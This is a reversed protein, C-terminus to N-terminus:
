EEEIHALITEAYKLEGTLGDYYQFVVHPHPFAVWRTARREIPNNFVNNVQVVCYHPFMRNRRPIDPLATTSWRIQCARPGYQFRGNTPCNGQDEPRHNVSNHPGSAFEWVRETIKVVFSNHLDGTLVFVPKGLSDWFEILTEREDLFATWADDKLEADFQAGGGGVHPVMLNVSSVVFHFDADSSKMEDMLWRTQHKGLISLGPKDPRKLDHLQRHSRTDLLYFDCNGVSFSGYSRRGISYSAAGNARAAPRIRLRHNDLVEVVDYVGANPDGGEIDGSPIDKVGADPTGWHVHLNGMQDPDILIDGGAEFTGRGFHIPQRYRVPNSWGLYDFWAQVAVDRFVARRNRYGATGTGFVDNLIEHDDFTYYSPVHRHWEALNRARQLYTKYNEWVGTITPAISVVRPTQRTAIGLQQRWQEPSDGRTEEYLWDGNLIAFNVDGKVKALLTDYTPLSPGLGDAPNQNNGCAFEFKFNFLGRPNFQPDRLVDPDPLTKFSGGAFEGGDETALRYFYTTDAALGQLQVVGTNDHALATAVSGSRQDLRDPSMGYIVHFRAPRSTRAWIGIGDASLRGLMPGHTIQVADKPSEEEAKFRRFEMERKSPRPRIRTLLPQGTERDFEDATRHAPISDGTRQAWQALAQRHYELVKAYQPSDALNNLEFPDNELDYLEEEPRPALFCAQQAQTLKNLNRLRRMAQFTPSRGADAPPTNPLDTYDNRIYKFRISRVARAHDEFDHWHDEAFAYDRIKAAPDNLLPLFSKGELTPGVPLGALQLLTPAIDVSSVLSRCTSAPRVKGPWRVIFPTKIGGDYLTTKDRPFPRGNDSFFLIFTNDAVGQQELEDLVRGVHSDLRAIEDYYLALDQRVEPVDPLYPPIRVDAPTHPTEITGTTYDRHPDLAALWLFFPKDKPRARLVPIWDECGSARVPSAQMVAGTAAQGSPLQFGLVDAEKVLDFRDKVAEGLHWKGVAATWYGAVKLQEVFTVQEAPLPWHLQEADTNHPYRGTIISSRSPSCSSVTLFASDFRMGQKALRDINPTRITPHGYAGCDDWNMDDAIILVINPKLAAGAAETGIGPLLSGALAAAFLIKKMQYRLM